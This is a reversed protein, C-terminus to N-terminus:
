SNEGKKRYSYHSYYYKKTEPMRTMVVGLVNVKATELADKMKEIEKREDHNSAVCILTGDCYTSAILGDTVINIPPCDIIVVDYAERAKEIFNKLANSQIFESSFPIKTGALLVDFTKEYQVVANALAIKGTVVDTIGYKNKLGLKKHVTPLRLDLDILLTRRGLQGYSAALNVATTTKGEQANASVINIVRIPNDFERMTINTRLTKYAESVVSDPYEMVVPKAAVINKVIQM